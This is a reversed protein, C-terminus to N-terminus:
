TELFLLSVRKALRASHIIRMRSQGMKVRKASQRGLAQFKEMPARQAHQTELLLLSAQRARRASRNNGMLSKVVQVLNAHLLPARPYPEWPVHRARAQAQGVAIQGTNEPAVIISPPVSTALYTGIHHARRIRAVQVGM